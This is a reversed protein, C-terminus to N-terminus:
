MTILFLHKRSNVLINVYKRTKSYIRRMYGWLHHLLQLPFELVGGRLPKHKRGILGNENASVRFPLMAPVFPPPTVPCRISVGGYPPSLCPILDIGM